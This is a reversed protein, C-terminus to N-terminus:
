QMMSIGSPSTFLYFVQAHYPLRGGGGQMGRGSRSPICISIHIRIYIYIHIYICNYIYIHICICICICIYITVARYPGIRGSVARYRGTAINHSIFAGPM